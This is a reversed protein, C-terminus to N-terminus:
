LALSWNCTHMRLSHLYACTFGYIACRQLSTEYVLSQSAIVVSLDREITQRGEADMWRIWRLWWFWQHGLYACAFAM